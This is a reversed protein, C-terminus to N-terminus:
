ARATLERLIDTAALRATIQKELPLEYGEAIDRLTKAAEEQQGRANLLFYIDTDDLAQAIADRAEDMRAKYDDPLNPSRGLWRAQWEDYSEPVVFVGALRGYPNNDALRYLESTLTNLGMNRATYDAPESGYFHGNARPSAAQVYLGQSLKEQVEFRADPQRLDLYRRFGVGDREGHEARPARSTIGQVVPVGSLEFLTTKGSGTPGAVATIGIRRAFQLVEPAPAYDAALETIQQMYAAHDDASFAPSEHNDSM